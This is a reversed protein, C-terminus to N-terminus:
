MEPTDMVNVLDMAKVFKRIGQLHAHIEHAITPDKDIICENWHGFPKVLLNERDIVFARVWECLTQAHSPGRQLCNATHLSSATWRGAFGSNPNIYTWMFLKMGELRSRFVLDLGPDKYGKGVHRPLKLIRKLDELASTVEEITLVFAFEGTSTGKAYSRPQAPASRPEDIEPEQRLSCGSDEVEEENEM